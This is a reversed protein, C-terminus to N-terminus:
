DYEFSYAFEKDKEPFFTDHTGADRLTATNISLEIYNNPQVDSGFLVKNGSSQVTAITIVGYSEHNTRKTEM